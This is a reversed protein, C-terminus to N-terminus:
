KTASPLRYIRYDDAAVVPRDFPVTPAGVTVLFRAGQRRYERIRDPALQEACVVVWGPRDAYYLLGIGTGHMTLIPEDPQTLRRIAMGAAVVARDEEPTVFAPKTAYRAAFVTALLSIGVVAVRGPQLREAVVQWGLGVLVTLPPLVAM